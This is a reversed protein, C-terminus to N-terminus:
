FAPNTPRFGARGRPPPRSSTLRARPRFNRYITVSKRLRNQRNNAAFGLPGIHRGSTPVNVIILSVKVVLKRQDALDIPNARPLPIDARRTAHGLQGLPSGCPNERSVHEHRLEPYIRRRQLEAYYSAVVSMAFVGFFIFSGVSAASDAIWSASLTRSGSAVAFSVAAASAAGGGGGAGSCRGSAGSASGAHRARELEEALSSSKSSSTRLTSSAPDIRRGALSSRSDIPCIKRDIWRRGARM